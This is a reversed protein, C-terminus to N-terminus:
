SAIQPLFTIDGFANGEPDTIRFFFGWYITKQCVKILVTNTGEKLIVPILDHDTYAPRNVNRAWTEEGNLWIKASEDTGVRFQAQRETPSTFTLLGYAVGWTGPSLLEKLDVFGEFISDGARHWHVKGRKGKYSKTLKTEREPPFRRHFGGKYEFPGIIWWDTERPTGTSTLSQELSEVDGKRKYYEFLLNKASAEMNPNEIKRTIELLKTSFSTVMEPRSTNEALAQSLIRASYSAIGRKHKVRPRALSTTWLALATDVKGRKLTVMARQRTCSAKNNESEALEKARDIFRELEDIHIDNHLCTSVFNIITGSNDEDKMRESASQFWEEYFKKAGLSNGQEEYLEGIEYICIFRNPYVKLAERYSKVAEEYHGKAWYTWGIYRHGTSKYYDSPAADILRRFCHFAEDFNGKDLYATGMHEWPFHLDPGRKLAEKYEEIAEDLHGATQYIEGISDHPNPEDPALELYRQLTEVAKEYMGMASYTYGMLNYVLKYSNDIELAAKFQALAEDYRRLSYYVEGLLHRVSIDNPFLHVMREYTEIMSKTDGKFLADFALISLREHETVRDVLTVAKKMASRADEMLGLNNHCIALRHYATAFTSDIAVAKEFCEAAKETFLRDYQELGEAFYRYAEISNTSVDALGKDFEVVEKLTLRLGDRVRKTLEDVLTFVEEMGQGEVRDSKLLTGTRTDYLDADIRITEGLRQFGGVLITELRVEKAVLLAKSADMGRSDHIGMREMTAAFDSESMVDLYRSQSLDTVLMESLGRRMWDLEEERSVNEFYFVGISRREEPPVQLTTALGSAQNTRRLTTNDLKIKQSGGQRECQSLIMATLGVLFILYTNRLMMRM